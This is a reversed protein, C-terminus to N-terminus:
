ESPWLQSRRTLEPEGSAPASAVNTEPLGAQLASKKFARLKGKYIFLPKRM